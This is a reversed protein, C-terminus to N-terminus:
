FLEHFHQSLLILDFGEHDIIEIEVGHRGLDMVEVLSECDIVYGGIDGGSSWINAVDAFLVVEVHIRTLPRWPVKGQSIIAVARRSKSIIPFIDAKRWGDLYTSFSLSHLRPLFLEETPDNGFDDQSYLTDIFCALLCDLFGCNVFSLHTLSPIVRLVSM